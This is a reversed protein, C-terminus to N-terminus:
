DLEIAAFESQAAAFEPQSAEQGKNEDKAFLPTLVHLVLDASGHAIMAAEIGKKWYLWGFAVGAVGNLALARAVVGADLKVIRATTPLHGAGFALTALVIAPLMTGAGPPKERNGTLKRLGAAVWTQLGLRMLLEEGIAGYLSALLGKWAPPEKLGAQKMAKSVRGFVTQDLAVILLGSASGIGTWASLDGGTIGARKGRIVREIYPAGLGMSRAARLGLGSVIAFMLPGQVSAGAVITRMSTPKRGQAALQKNLDEISINSMSLAYPLVAVSSLGGGVALALWTKM